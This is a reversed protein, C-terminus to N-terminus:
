TQVTLALGLSPEWPPLQLRPSGWSRRNKSFQQPPLVNGPKIARRSKLDPVLGQAPWGGLAGASGALGTKKGEPSVAEGQLSGDWFGAGLAAWSSLQMSIPQPETGM